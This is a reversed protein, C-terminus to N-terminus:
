RLKMIGKDEKCTAIVPNVSTKVKISQEELSFKSMSFRLSSLDTATIMPFGLDESKSTQM